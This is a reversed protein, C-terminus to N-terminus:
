QKSKSLEIAKDVVENVERLSYEASKRDTAAKSMVLAVRLDGGAEEMRAVAAAENLGVEDMLIRVAREQLKENSARMNTMHNGKVYGLRIMAVTSIMNLIMKQATGAKMRTSGTIAEPGVIPVIAVEATRTIRSDPNCVICATFCGLDRAYRVAGITYPTRGSAAIGVVADKSTLGRAQLDEAGQETNDESSETAKYLADYGGAIVGQVLDYSVGYTPPIESADLVGLRGSTGTGIYFLRGGNQLREVIRDTALAIEPLVKEIAAAVLYDERNILRVAELTSIEDIESTNPNDTETIPIM